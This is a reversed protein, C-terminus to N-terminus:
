IHNKYTHPTGKPVLSFGGKSLTDIKDGVQVTIEGELIYYTEDQKHHIHLPPGGGPPTTFEFIDYAGNTESGPAKFIITEGM